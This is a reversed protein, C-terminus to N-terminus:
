VASPGGLYLMSLGGNSSDTRGHSACDCKFHLSHIPSCLEDDDGSDALEIVTDANLPLLVALTTTENTFDATYQGNDEVPDDPDSDDIVTTTIKIHRQHCLKLNVPPFTIEVPVKQVPVYEDDCCDPPVLCKDSSMTLMMNRDIDLVQM